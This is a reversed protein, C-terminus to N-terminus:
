SLAGTLPEFGIEMVDAIHKFKILGQRAATEALAIMQVGSVDLLAAMRTEFLGAGDKGDLYGLYMAFVVNEPMVVANRRTRKSVGEVFGAQCWCSNLNRGISRLSADSYCDGCHSKMWASTKEPTVEDGHKLSVFYDASARVLRDAIWTQQLALLPRAEKSRAWLMHFVCYVADSFDLRYLRRLYMASKVRAGLTAKNLCNEELVARRYDDFTVGFGPVADLLAEIEAVMITRANVTTSDSLVLKGRLDLLM